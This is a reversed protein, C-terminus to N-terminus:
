GETPNPRPAAPLPTLRMMNHPARSERPTVPRPPTQVARTRADVSAPHRPPIQTQPHAQAYTGQAGEKEKRRRSPRGCGGSSMRNTRPHPSSAPPPNVPSQTGQGAKSGLSAQPMSGGAPRLGCKEASERRPHRVLGELFPEARAWKQLEWLQAHTWRQWWPGHAPSHGQNPTHAHTGTHTNPHHPSTATAPRPSDEYEQATLTRASRPHSRVRVRRYASM